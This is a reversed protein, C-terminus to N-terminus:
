LLSNKLSCAGNNLNLLKEYERILLQNCKASTFEKVVRERAQQGLRKRLEDDVVLKEIAKSLQIPNQPEVLVGTKGEIVADSLGYINTGVVPIQMAAAEIVVTGFGERYSPLCLLDSIAMYQEPKEQFGVFHIKDGCLTKAQSRVEKENHQEFPGVMLLVVKHGQDLNYKVAEFLEFIGKEKTIRGVFLLIKAKPDINLSSRLKIRDEESFRKSSFRQIDVGALSGSGIVHIKNSPIIQNQILFERQSLSDAYCVLNLKSIVKDSWQVLLKRWGTMTAWTQGTYTHISIPVGALKGAIACLFGAKPTTSHVIDFREKRFLRWLKFLAKLDALLSIQRPIFVPRYSCGKIQQVEDSLEAQSTVIYVEAEDAALAELQSRLQTFVFFPITSVRAIRINKLANGM